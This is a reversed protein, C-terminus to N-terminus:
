EWGSRAQPQLAAQASPLLVNFQSGAGPKSFVDIYGKHNKVIGYTSALELGTGQGEPKTTFFPEFIKKRTDADMGHGTDRVSLMAYRGTVIEYARDDSATLITHQNRYM